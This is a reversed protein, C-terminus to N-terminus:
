NIVGVFRVVLWRLEAHGHRARSNTQTGASRSRSRETALCLLVSMRQEAQRLLRTRFAFYILRGTSTKMTFYIAKLRGEPRLKGSLAPTDM